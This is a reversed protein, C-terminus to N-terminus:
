RVWLVVCCSVLVSLISCCALGVMWQLGSIESRFLFFFPVEPRRSSAAVVRERERVSVSPRVSIHARAVVVFGGDLLRCSLPRAHERWGVKVVVWGSLSLLPLRGLPASRARREAAVDCRREGRPKEGGRRKRGKTGATSRGGTEGLGTHAGELGKAVAARISIFFGASVPPRRRVQHLLVTPLSPPPPPCQTSYLLHKGAQRTQMTPRDSPPAASNERPPHHLPSSAFRPSPYTRLHLLPRLQQQLNIAPPNV